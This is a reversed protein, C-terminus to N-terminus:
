RDFRWSASLALVSANGRYRTIFDSVLSDQYHAERETFEFRTYGVDLGIREGRYGFGFSVGWADEQPFLPTVLRPSVASREYALGAGLSWHAAIQNEYGLRVALTDEWHEHATQFFPSDGFFGPGIERNEGSTSGWETAALDLELRSTPTPSLYGALVVERPLEYTRHLSARRPRSALLPEIEPPASVVRYRVEGSGSLEIPSRYVVGLGWTQADYQAALDFGSGQLDSTATADLEAFRIVTLNPALPTTASNSFPPSMTVFGLRGRRGDVMEGDLARFGAGFSWRESARFALVPHFEEIVLDLREGALAHEFDLGQWRREVSAPHDFGLGFAWRGEKHPKWSVFASPLTRRSDVTEASRNQWRADLEDALGEVGLVARFGDLRALGAPNSFIASADDARATFAGAQATARAGHQFHLIAQGYLSTPAGLLVLACFRALHRIPSTPNPLM